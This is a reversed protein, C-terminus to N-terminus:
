ATARVWVTTDSPVLVAGDADTATDGSTLLVETGAPLVVPATGLNAVVQVERNVFAIVDEGLGPTWALGGSGLLESRRLGLAARYTEYTSGAVGRQADLAYAAWSAPQPLWTVGTPSFGFGEEAAAWPLPVRCGDRGREAGGTRFFAPDQRLDDDLATHDPLGLEEGQYLYASGPLGLMLLTAARARRLGLAEDPQEDGVGIGNPRSGPVSLGLRSAHRVVDHNSLVWTTPAGVGDATVYSAEIVDRLQPADWPTALFAFNFAQQMEDPRVYLALRSLPEVWAEAVLARDGAYQALVRNWARYIEHVGDQDFMPGRNGSGTVEDARSPDDAETPVADHGDVEDVGEIMSVHGDWDPLGAEKVMGHAVDIRFGDVGRDLWFRLVDEFEARVEPHEWNLDPQRSDFLHLYWQGPTGDPNTTRTWAPGGFISQWNNPPEEGHEGRGERFLYRDRAASGPGAAMAEVFWAHEDSTHNPVLDVIVRMGLEHARGLLTDFDDLTGFLPDVDRYDAVDYGADAQPSRYFPSLWVADVGLEALHPLRSTIGPLDGVGDGSADAFSRPYVQYIVATRWWEADPSCPAHVLTHLPRSDLTTM